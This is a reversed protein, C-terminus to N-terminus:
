RTSARVYVMTMGYTAAHISHNPHVVWEVADDIRNWRPRGLLSSPDRRGDVAKIWDRVTNPHLVFRNAVLTTNWNRLRMIQLIALRQDPSYDPRRHSPLNERQDRLIELKRRLMWNWM